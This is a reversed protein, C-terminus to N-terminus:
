TRILISPNRLYLKTASLSISAGSQNIMQGKLHFTRRSTIRVNLWCKIASENKARIAPVLLTDGRTWFTFMKLSLLLRYSIYRRYFVCLYWTASPPFDFSERLLLRTKLSVQISILLRLDFTKFRSKLRFLLYLLVVPFYPWVHM